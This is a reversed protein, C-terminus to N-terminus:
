GGKRREVWDPVAEEVRRPDTEYIAAIHNNVMTPSIKLVRAAAAVRGERRLTELVFYRDIGAHAASDTNTESETNAAKPTAKPKPRFISIRPMTASNRDSEGLLKPNRNQNQGSESKTTAPLLALIPKSILDTVYTWVLWPVVLFPLTIAVLLTVSWAVSPGAVLGLRPAALIGVALVSSAALALFSWRAAHSHPFMLALMMASIIMVAVSLAADPSPDVLAYTQTLYRTNTILMLVFLLLLLTMASVRWLHLKM